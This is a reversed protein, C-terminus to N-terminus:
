PADNVPTPKHTSFPLPPPAHPAPSSQLTTSPSTKPASKACEWIQTTVLRLHQVRSVSRHPRTTFHSRKLVHRVFRWILMICRCIERVRRVHGVRWVLCLGKGRVRRASMRRCTIIHRKWLVFIRRWDQLILPMEKVNYPRTTLFQIQPACRANTSQLTM